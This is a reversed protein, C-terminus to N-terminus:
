KSLGEKFANILDGDDLGAQWAFVGALGKTKAYECKALVSTENEYSIFTLRDTSILYPVQCINDYYYTYNANNLYNQKIQKYSPNITYTVDEKKPHYWSSNITDRIQIIGYFGSGVILKSSSVGFNNFITVSEDVSCSVLTSAVKNELNHYASSSSSRYLATHHYGEATSMNYTMINIYDIYNKSNELDYKKPQWAGGGIAATVLHNPNNAKVAPYLKSMLRTFLTGDSPIEWDIDVGDFGYTNILGIINDVFTNILEDSQCITEFAEDYAVDTGCISLIVWTGKSHAKPLVYQQMNPLYYTYNYGSVNSETFTGDSAPYAFGCTIIDCVEFLSNDLSTYTSSNGGIYSAAINTLEKYGDVEVEYTYM